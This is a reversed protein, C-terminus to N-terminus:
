ANTIHWITRDLEENYGLKTLQFTAGVIVIKPDLGSTMIDSLYIYSQKGTHTMVTAYKFKTLKTRTTKMYIKEVKVKFKEGVSFDELKDIQKVKNLQCNPRFIIAQPYKM